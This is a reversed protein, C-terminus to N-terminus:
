RRKTIKIDYLCDDFAVNDEELFSLVYDRRLKDARGETYTVGIIGDDYSEVVWVYVNQDSM